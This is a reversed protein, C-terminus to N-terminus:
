KAAEENRQESNGNDKYCCQIRDDQRKKKREKNGGKKRMYSMDCIVKTEVERIYSMDCIVNTEVEWRDNCKRDTLPRKPLESKELVISIM